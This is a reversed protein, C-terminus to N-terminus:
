WQYLRREQLRSFGWAGPGDKGPAHTAPFHVGSFHTERSMTYLPYRRGETSLRPTGPAFGGARQSDLVPTGAAKSPTSLCGRKGCPSDCHEPEQRRGERRGTLGWKGASCPKGKVEKGWWPVVQRIHLLTPRGARAADPCQISPWRCPPTATMGRPAESLNCLICSILLLRPDSSPRANNTIQPFGLM